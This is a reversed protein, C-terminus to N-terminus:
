LSHGFFLVPFTSNQWISSFPTYLLLLIFPFDLGTNNYCDWSRESSVNLHRTCHFCFEVNLVSSEPETLSEIPFASPSELEVKFPSDPFADTNLFSEREKSFDWSSFLFIAIKDTQCLPTCLLLVFFPFTLDLTTTANGHANLISM